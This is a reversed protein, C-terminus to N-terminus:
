TMPEVAEGELTLTTLEDGDFDPTLLVGVKAVGVVGTEERRPM